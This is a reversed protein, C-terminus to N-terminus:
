WGLCLRPGQCYGARVLCDKGENERKKSGSDYIGHEDKEQKEKEIAKNYINIINIYYTIIM